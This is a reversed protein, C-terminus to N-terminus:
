LRRLCTAPLDGDYEYGNGPMTENHYTDDFLVSEDQVIVEYVVPDSGNSKAVSDAYEEAAPLSDTLFPCNWVGQKNQPTLGSVEIEHSAGSHTGHYFIREEPAALAESAYRTGERFRM